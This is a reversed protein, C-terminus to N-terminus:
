ATYPCCDLASNEERFYKPSKIQIVGNDKATGGKMNSTVILIFFFMPINKCMELFTSFENNMKCSESPLIKFSSPM